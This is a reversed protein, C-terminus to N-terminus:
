KRVAWALGDPNTGTPIRGTVALSKLDIAAVANEQGLAVFARSGDPVMQIGGGGRGVPIKKIEKRSARDLVVVDRGAPDSLLVLKGDPTLKLRNAREASVNLTQTVKKSDVDIISVTRDLANAVWLETGDPSLDFGEAGRGVPVITVHWDLPAPGRGRGAPANAISGREVISVTASSINTTFIRSLDKSVVVMHTRDQGTGLVWDVRKTSPDYTGIVKNSEATFYLKGGAMALGHSGGLPALEIPPLAKQTTLDVVSITRLPSPRGAGYNSVYAFRGDDSVIVEHPDDGVPVRALVKLSAPDVIVMSMDTKELVLLASPPTEAASLTIAGFVTLFLIVCAHLGM